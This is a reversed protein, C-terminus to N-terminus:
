NSETKAPPTRYCGEGLPQLLQNYATTDDIVTPGFFQLQRRYNWITVPPLEGGEWKEGPYKKKFEEEIKRQDRLWKPLRPKRRKTTM